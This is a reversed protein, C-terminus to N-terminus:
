STLLAASTELTTSAAPSPLCTVSGSSSTARGSLSPARREDQALAWWAETKRIPMLAAARSDQRGLPSSVVSLATQEGTTVYRAHGAVGVLTWAAGDPSPIRGDRVAVCEAFPLTEGSVATASRVIWDGIGGGVFAAPIVPM